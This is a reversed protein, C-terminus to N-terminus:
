VCLTSLPQGKKWTWKSMAKCVRTMWNSASDGNFRQFDIPITCKRYCVTGRGRNAQQEQHIKGVIQYWPFSYEQDHSAFQEASGPPFLPRQLFGLRQPPVWRKKKANSVGKNDLLMISISRYASGHHLTSVQFQIQQCYIVLYDMGQLIPYTVICEKFAETHWIM